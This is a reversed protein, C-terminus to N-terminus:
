HTLKPPTANPHHGLDRPASAAVTERRKKASRAQHRRPLHDQVPVSGPLAPLECVREPQDRRDPPDGSRPVPQRLVPLPQRMGRYRKLWDFMRMRRAPIALAAGLPCLYRLSANSSSARWLFPRPMAVFPWARVFEPRHRDQVARGRRLSRGTRHEDPQRRLPRPLDHIEAALSTRAPGLAADMAPHPLARAIRNTLEQLAGFPCLWGCYAGRGWFLARRRRQVVPHLDPPGSSRRGSFGSVLPESLAM